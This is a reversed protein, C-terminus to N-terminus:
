DAALNEINNEFQMSGTGIYTGGNETVVDGSKILLECHSAIENIATLNGFGELLRAEFHKRAIQEATAPSGYFNKTPLGSIELGSPLRFRVTMDNGSADGRHIVEAHELL